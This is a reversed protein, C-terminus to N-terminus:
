RNSVTPVNSAPEQSRRPAALYAAGVGLLYLGILPIAM